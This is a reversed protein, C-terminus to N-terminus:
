SRFRRRLEPTPVRCAAQRGFWSIRRRAFARYVMDRLRRPVWLLLSCVPWLGSLRRAIRLPATSHTYARDGEVLVVSDLSTDTLGHERLTRQGLESSLTAFVFREHPDRDIIFMVTGNCFSCEGDYLVLARDTEALSM